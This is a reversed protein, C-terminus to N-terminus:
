SGEDSNRKEWAPTEFTPSNREECCPRRRTGSRLGLMLAREQTVVAGPAWAQSFAQGRAGWPNSVGITCVGGTERGPVWSGETRLTVGRPAGTGPSSPLAM